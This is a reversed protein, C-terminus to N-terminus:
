KIGHRSVIASTKVFKLVALIAFFMRKWEKLATPPHQFLSRLYAKLSATSEGGDLLYRANVRHAGAWIKRRLKVFREKLAPYTQMWKVICYAEKGFGAASAINKAELHFRASAFTRPIYKIQAIAAMRLWLQHDLLFRYSLDLLGARVLVERRMFVAPQGIINFCMLGDLGWNKYQLHNIAQGQGDIALVDGYVFGIEKNNQLEEVALTVAKPHYLDDSNLWAVFEGKARQLGKNIADAQGLDPESVWWSICEQYKEIIDISGDNSGGDIVLYEFNPYDQNIVSQITKELYQAQNFSPTIISVLPIKGM